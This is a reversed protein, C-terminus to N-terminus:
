ARREPRTVDGVPVHVPVGAGPKVVFVFNIACDGGVPDDTRVWGPCADFWRVQEPDVSTAAMADVAPARKAWALLTSALQRWAGEAGQFNAVSVFRYQRGGLRRRELRVYARFDSAEIWASRATPHAVLADLTSDISTM